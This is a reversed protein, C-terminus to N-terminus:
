HLLNYMKRRYASVLPHGSGLLNFIGLLGKRGAEDDFQPARRLLELFQELAAEYDGALVLRAGLQRRRAHEEPQARLTDQLSKLGPAGDALTAFELRALLGSAPEATRVESPLGKLLEGAASTDGELLLKEALDVALEHNDPEAKLAERLLSIAKGRKGRQWAQEAQDRPGNSPKAAYRELMQRYASEPHVGVLEDVAEGGRFLKVTPLARVGFHLALEQDLDTNVKALLFAGRAAEALRKLLPMLIQCPQCWAAWFDVLVPVQFSNDLVVAAFNERTVEVVYPSDNM